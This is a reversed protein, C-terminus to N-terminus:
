AARSSPGNEEGDVHSQIPTVTKAKPSRRKALGLLILDSRRELVTRATASWDALWRYLALLADDREMEGAPTHTADAPHALTCASAVLERLHKRVREDLGRRALTALAASDGKRTDKREPAGELADLRDLFTMMPTICQPGRMAVLNAFVFRAQVPHKHELAARARTFGGDEWESLQAVAAVAPPQEAAKVLVTLDDGGAKALLHWGEKHDEPTYGASGLVMRLMPDRAIGCLFTTARGITGALVKPSPVGETDAADAAVTIDNVNHITSNKINRM